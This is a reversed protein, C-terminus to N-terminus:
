SVDDINEDNIIDPKGLAVSKGNNDRGFLTFDMNTTLFDYSLEIDFFYNSSPVEIKIDYHMGKKEDGFKTLM